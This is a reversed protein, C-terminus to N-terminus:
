RTAHEQDGVIAGAVTTSAGGIAKSGSPGVDNQNMCWDVGAPEVLDLDIERDNLALQKGRVVELAQCVQRPVHHCELGAVLPDGFWELPGKRAM